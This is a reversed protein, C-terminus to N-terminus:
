RDGIMLVRSSDNLNYKTKVFDNMKTSPKGIQIPKRGTFTSVIDQFYGPGTFIDMVSTDFKLFSLLKIFCKIKIKNYTERFFIRLM